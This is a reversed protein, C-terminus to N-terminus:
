LDDQVGPFINCPMPGDPAACDMFTDGLKSLGPQLLNLHLFLSSFLSQLICASLQLSMYPKLAMHTSVWNISMDQNDDALIMMMMM